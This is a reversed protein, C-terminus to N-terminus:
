LCHPGVDVTKKATPRTGGVKLVHGLIAHGMHPRQGGGHQPEPGAM